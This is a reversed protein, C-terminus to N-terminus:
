MIEEEQLQSILNRLLAVHTQTNPHSKNISLQGDDNLWYAYYKYQM